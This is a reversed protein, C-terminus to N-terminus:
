KWGRRIKEKMKEMRGSTEKLLRSYEESSADKKDLADMQDSFEFYIIENLREEDFKQSKILFNSFNEFNKQHFSASFEQSSKVLVTVKKANAIEKAEERTIDYEVLVQFIDLSPIVTATGKKVRNLNSKLKLIKGNDLTIFIQDSKLPAPFNITFDAKLYLSISNLDQGVPASQVLLLELSLLTSGDELVPTTIDLMNDGMALTHFGQEMHHVSTAKVKTLESAVSAYSNM